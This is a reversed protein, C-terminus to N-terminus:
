HEKISVTMERSLNGHQLQWYGKWWDVVLLGVRSAHSVTADKQGMGVPLAM